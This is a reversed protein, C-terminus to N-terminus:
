QEHREGQTGLIREYMDIYERARVSWSFDMTMVTKVKKDWEDQDSYENVAQKIRHLMEHANYNTFTYGNGGGESGFDKISDKLGGTERVIPIAGYRSAIMQSLGCPETLSPMLFLDAGAYIKRSLDQNYAIIARLKNPNKHENAILLNEYMSDGTGLVALQLPLNLMEDMVAKVLDIGKHGVLRTVMGIVPISEDVPLNLMKQLEMKNTKKGERTTEDYRSFLAKDTKPNYFSGDIGNLIGQLKDAHKEVVYHLGHSFYPNKIEEAYSPSVTSIMSSCEMAGKMLNIMGDYEAISAEAMSLGFVDEIIDQDFKYKGQYEINHITFVTHVKQYEKKNQFLYKLYISILATQWDNAHIIDPYYEIMPLIELVAKSFFAFREADDFYGYLKVRKFYYENDIFYYVIDNEILRHVGCYQRRWSLTVDISGLFEMKKRWEDSIGGYLPLVVRIDYKTKRRKILEKPLSGLVDALGGSSVFPQCESGAILINRKGKM